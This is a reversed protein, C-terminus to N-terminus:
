SRRGFINMICIVYYLIGTGQLILSHRRAECICQDHSTELYFTPLSWQRWYCGEVSGFDRQDTLVSTITEECFLEKGKFFGEHLGKTTM